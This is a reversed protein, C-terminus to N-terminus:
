LPMTCCASSRCGSTSSNQSAGSDWRPAVTARSRVFQVCSGGGLSAFKACGEEMSTGNSHGGYASVSARKGPKGPAKRLWRRAARWCRPWDETMSGVSHTTCGRPGHRRRMRRLQVMAVDNSDPAFPPTDIVTCGVVGDGDDLDGPAARRVPGLAGPEQQREFEDIPKVAGRRGPQDAAGSPPMDCPVGERVCRRRPARQTRRCM